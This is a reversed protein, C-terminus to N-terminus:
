LDLPEVGEEIGCRSKRVTRLMDRTWQKGNDVEECFDRWSEEGGFAADPNPLFAMVGTHVDILPTGSLEAVIRTYLTIFRNLIKPTFVITYPVRQPSGDRNKSPKVQDFVMSHPNVGYHKRIALFNACAQIEYSPAAEGQQRVKSTFKHDVIGIGNTSGRSVVLDTICKIPVPQVENRLDEFDSVFTQEVAIPTYHPLEARYFGIIKEIKEKSKEENGTKGWDILPFEPNNDSFLVDINEAVAADWDFNRATKGEMFARWYDAAIAHACSGELASPSRKQDFELRIYRKFFSQRDALYQRIASASLHAVPFNAVQRVTPM